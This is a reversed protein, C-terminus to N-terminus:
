SFRGGLGRVWVVDSREEPLNHSPPSYQSDQQQQQYGNAVHHSSEYLSQSFQTMPSPPRDHGNAPTSTDPIDVDLL